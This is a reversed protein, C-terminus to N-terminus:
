EKLMNEIFIGYGKTPDNVMVHTVAGIMRDDQIIPSGSMGQVIGGTLEILDPDTVEFHISKNSSEDEYEVDTIDIEYTQVKGSIDSLIYAKGNKIEQKYAVPYYSDSQSYKDLDEEDLYGYIGISSNNEITGLCCNSTYSIMGELEGPTGKKGKTIGILSATYIKGDSVTLLEGTEGDGIGHGLAGFSGNQQYYTLTGIGAMDDKVWIGLLYQHEETEVPTVAVEIEKGKRLIGLNITENGNEQVYNVLEEKTSIPNQDVSIIYDGSMVKNEAPTATMGQNNRVVATKMVLVGYTQEYIGIVRGSAYLSTEEVVSVSIEKVPILGFLSCTLQCDEYVAMEDQFIGEQQVLAGSSDTYMQLMTEQDQSNKLHLEVPLVTSLQVAEGKRVYIQDPIHTMFLHYSFCIMVCVYVWLINKYVRVFFRWM